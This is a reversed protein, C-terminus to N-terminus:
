DCSVSFDRLLIPNWNQNYDAISKRRRKETEDWTDYPGFAIM